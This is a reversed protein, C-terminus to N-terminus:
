WWRPSRWCRSAWCAASARSRRRCRRPPATATDLLHAIAGVQTQMGTATVVARANGQVIATGKFVMCVREGLAADPAVAEVQKRVAASEGTLSAEQVRLEAAQILRADAGVEDGEALLLIDGPVLEEAPIRQAQGDRLVSATSRTMTALAAVAGVARTEHWHGLVANLLVIGAIVAADVPWHDRPGRAWVLLSVVVAALLLYILPDQFQRLLQRWAPIPARARLVNDGHRTRRRVVEDSDLGRAPNVQRAAAVSAPAAAWPVDRSADHQSSMMGGNQMSLDRNRAFIRWLM